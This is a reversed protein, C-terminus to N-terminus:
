PFEPNDEEYILQVIFRLTYLAVVLRHCSNTKGDKRRSECQTGNGAKTVPLGDGLQYYTARKPIKWWKEMMELKM